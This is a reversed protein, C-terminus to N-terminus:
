LSASTKFLALGLGWQGEASALSLVGTRLQQYVDALAPTDELTVEASAGAHGAQRALHLFASGCLVAVLRRHYAFGAPVEAVPAGEYASLLARCTGEDMRLFVALTALDYFLDNPGATDWDLLFLHEGDYVLNTPNVDNHSFVLRRKRLPPVEARVRELAGQVFAPLAFGTLASGLMALFALPDKPPADPPLPLEHMCRLMRGLSALAAERSSPDNYFLRFGRDAVFDSLIAREAEEVHVVRPALGAGAALEQLRLKSRWDASTEGAASVKLVLAQGASQVRYVGAGSLGAAIRTITTTTGRLNVPLCAQLNVISEPL